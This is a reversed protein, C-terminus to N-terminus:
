SQTCRAAAVRAAFPQVTVMQSRVVSGIRSAASCRAAGDDHRRGDRGGSPRAAPHSVGDRGADATVALGFPPGAPSRDRPRGAAM